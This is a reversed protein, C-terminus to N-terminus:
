TEGGWQQAIKVLTVTKSDQFGKVHWTEQVKRSTKGVGLLQKNGNMRRARHAERRNGGWVQNQVGKGRGRGGQERM